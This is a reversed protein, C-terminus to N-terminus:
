SHYGGVYPPPNQRSFCKRRTVEAALAKAVIRSSEGLVQPSAIKPKSEWPRKPTGDERCREDFAIYLSIMERASTQDTAASETRAAGREKLAQGADIQLGGFVAGTRPEPNSSADTLYFCTFILTFGELEGISPCAM